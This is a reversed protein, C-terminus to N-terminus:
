QLLPRPTTVVLNDVTQGGSLGGEVGFGIGAGSQNGPELPLSITAGRDFRVIAGDLAAQFTTGQLTMELTHKAKGDFGSPAPASAIVVNGSLRNLTVRGTSHLQLWFGPTQDAILPSGADYARSRFFPGIQTVQDPDAPPPVTVDMKLAFDERFTSAFGGSCAPESGSFEVGTPGIGPNRLVGRAIEGGIAVVRDAIPYRYLPHYYTVLGGGMANNAPGLDCGSTSERGDFNDSFLTTVVLPVGTGSLAGEASGASTTVLVTSKQEGTATPSFRFTVPVAIGPNLIFPVPPSTLRFLTNSAIIATVEMPSPGTNTLTLNADRTTGVEVNGFPLTAPTFTIRAASVPAAGTGAVSLSLAGASTILLMGGSQNGAASPAFRITVTVSAGAAVALPLSPGAVSFAPNTSGASTVQVPSGGPNTLTVTLDRWTGAAVSGFDLTTPSMTLPTVTTSSGAGSGTLSVAARPSRPDSSVVTLQGSQVGATSPSFRVTVTASSGAAVIFPASPTIVRFPAAIELAGVQLTAAGTNRLVLDRDATQGVTVTGFDLSSSALALSPTAAVPTAPNSPPTYVQQAPLVAALPNLSSTVWGVAAVAQDSDIVVYGTPMGAAQPVLKSLETVARGGAPIRLTGTGARTGDPAMVRVQATAATSTTNQMAIWTSYGGANVFQPLVASRDPQAELVASARTGLGGSADLYTLTACVSATDSDLALAASLSASEALGFISAVTRQSQRGGPVTFSAPAAAATGDDKVLRATIRAADGGYNVITLRANPEGATAHPAYLRRGSGTAALTQGPLASAITRSSVIQAAALEQNGRVIAYGSFSQPPETAFLSSATLSLSGKAPLTFSASGASAGQPDFLDVTLSAAFATPNALYIRSAVGPKWEIEPLLQETAYLPPVPLAAAGYRSALWALALTQPQDSAAQLFSRQTAAEPVLDGALATWQRGAPLATTLPRSNLASGDGGYANVSLNVGTSGANVVTLATQLDGAPVAPFNWFRRQFPGLVGLTYRPAIGSIRATARRNASNVTTPWSRVAGTAPDYSVIAMKSEDFGPDDPLDSASYALTLDAQFGTAEPVAPDFTWVRNIGLFYPLDPTVAMSGASPSKSAGTPVPSSLNRAASRVTNTGSPGGSANSLTAGAGSVSGTRASSLDLPLIVALSVPRYAVGPCSWRAVCGSADFGPAVSMVNLGVSELAAPPEFDCSFELSTTGPQAPVRERASVAKRYTVGGASYEFGCYFERPKDVGPYYATIKLRTPQDSRVDTPTVLPNIWYPRKGVWDSKVWENSDFLQYTARFRMHIGAAAFNDPFPIEISGSATTPQTKPAIPSAGAGPVSSWDNANWLYAEAEVQLEKPAAPAEWTVTAKLPETYDRARQGDFLLDPLQLKLEAKAPKVTYTVLDSKALVTGGAVLSFQFTLGLVVPIRATLSCYVPIPPFFGRPLPKVTGCSKSLSSIPRGDDAYANMLMEAQPRSNLEYDVRFEFATEAEVMLVPNEPWRRQLSVNDPSADRVWAITDSSKLVRGSPDRLTARLFLRDWADPLKFGGLTLRVTQPDSSRLVTVPTNTALPVASANVSDLLELSLKAEAATRLLYKVNASIGAILADDKVAGASPTSDVLTIDDVGSGAPGIRVQVAIRVRDAVPSSVDVTGSLNGEPLGGTPAPRFAVTTSAGSDLLYTSPPEVQLAVPTVGGISAYVTPDVSFQLTGGGSNKVTLKEPFPNRDGAPGTLILPDPSVAIKPLSLKYQSSIQLTISGNSNRGQVSVQSTSRFIGVLQGNGFDHTGSGQYFLKQSCSSSVGISTSGSLKSQESRDSGNSPTCTSTQDQRDQSVQGMLYFGDPFPAAGTTTLTGALAVSVPVASRPAYGGGGAPRPSVPMQEPVTVALTGAFVADVCEVRVPISTRADNSYVTQLGTTATGNVLFRCTNGSGSSSLAIEHRWFPGSVATVVDQAGLPSLSPILIALALLRM